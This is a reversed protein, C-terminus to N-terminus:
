AQSLNPVLPGAPEPTPALWLVTLVTIDDHQGYAEAAHAMKGASATSLMATREFGFLEGSQSRAEVVGDTLLMLRNGSVLQLTTHPYVARDDLGLPLGNELAIESGDLYPALHGANAFVIAGEATLDACLCTAFGGVRSSRLVRNLHELLQAPSDTERREAAGILLTATMAAATGKGSVDGILVRQRGDRMTRCLYFDGGVEQAPLFAADITWGAATDIVAPVLLHQIQRAAQMEGALAARERNTSRLRQVLLLTMSVVVATIAVSRYPQIKLFLKQVDLNLFPLQVVMYALDM